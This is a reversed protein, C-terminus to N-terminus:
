AFFQQFGDFTPTIFAPAMQHQTAKKM